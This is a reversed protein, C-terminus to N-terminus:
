VRRPVRLHGTCFCADATSCLNPLKSGSLSLVLLPPIIWGLLLSQWADTNTSRLRRWAQKVPLFFIWPLLALPLVILFFWFPKSRGHSSSGFREVLEYRWFYDFLQEDRAVVDRVLVFQDGSYAALQHLWPMSLKQDPTAGWEWGIVACLPVVLAMPGKTLFGLGMLVFFLWKRRHLAATIAAM